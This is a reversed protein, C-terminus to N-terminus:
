LRRITGLVDKDKSIVEAIIHSIGAEVKDISDLGPNDEAIFTELCIYDTGNLLTMAPDELGLQRAAEAKTKKSGTKYPAYQFMPLM